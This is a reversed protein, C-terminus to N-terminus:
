STVRATLTMSRMVFRSMDAKWLRPPHSLISSRSSISTACHRPATGKRRGDVTRGEEEEEDPPPLTSLLLTGKTVSLSVPFLLLEASTPDASVGATVTSVSVGTTAISVVSAVPPADTAAPFLSEVGWNNVRAAPLANLEPTSLVHIGSLAARMLDISFKKFFAMGSGVNESFMLVHSDKERM